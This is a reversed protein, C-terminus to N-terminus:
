TPRRGRAATTRRFPQVLLRDLRSDGPNRFERLGITMGMQGDRPEARYTRFLRDWWPINFGFNSNTEDVHVSHHVRHMDPTVVLWRLPRELRAPLRVNAHTFVSTANLVVEFVLVALPPAGLALVVAIKAMMSLVAEFVHFRVGSTADLDLDAHHVRHLRWLVPVAHFLRHQVYVSLDLAVISVVFSAVPGISLAPLVGWGRTAAFAAAGVAAAPFLLRVAAADLAALGLNGPWRRGRGVTLRRRPVIQECTAAVTLVLLFAVLRLIPEGPVVAVPSTTVSALLDSLM